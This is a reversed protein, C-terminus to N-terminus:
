RAAMDADTTEVIAVIRHRRGESGHAGPRMLHLAREVSEAYAAAVGIESRHNGIQHEFLTTFRPYRRFRQVAKGGNGLM